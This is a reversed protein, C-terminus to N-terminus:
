PSQPQAYAPRGPLPPPLGGGELADLARLQLGVLQSWVGWDGRLTRFGDSRWWRRGCAHSFAPACVPPRGSLWPACKPTGCRGKTCACCPGDPLGSWSVPSRLLACRLVGGAGWLPALRPVGEPAAAPPAGRGGVAPAPAPSQAEPRRHPGGRRQVRAAHPEPGRQEADRRQVPGPATARSEELNTAQRRLEMAPEGFPFSCGTLTLVAVHGAPPGHGPWAVASHRGHVIGPPPPLGRRPNHQRTSARQSWCM